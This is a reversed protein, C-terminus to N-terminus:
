AANVEAIAGDGIFQATFKVADGGDITLVVNTSTISANGTWTVNTATTEATLVLEAAAATSVVPLVTGDLYWGSFSGSWGKYGNALTEKYGDSVLSDTVDKVDTTITLEWDTIAIVGGWSAAGEVGTIKTSSAM